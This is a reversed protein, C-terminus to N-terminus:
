RGSIDYRFGNQNPPLQDPQIDKLAYLIGIRLHDMLFYAVKEKIKPDKIFGFYKDTPVPGEYGEEFVTKVGNHEVLHKIM